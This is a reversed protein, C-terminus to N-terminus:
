KYKVIVNISTIRDNIERLSVLDAAIQTRLRIETLATTLSEIDVDTHFSRESYDGDVDNYALHVADDSATIGVSNPAVDSLQQVITNHLTSILM